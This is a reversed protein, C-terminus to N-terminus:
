GATALLVDIEAIRPPAGLREWIARSERLRAIGEETEGLALLCRGLGALAHAQEPPVGFTSWGDAASAYAERARGHDGRAEALAGTCSAVAHRNVPIETRVGDVLRAGLEPAGHAVCIRVMAPLRWAFGPDSRHIVRADLEALLDLARAYDLNADAAAAGALLALVVYLLHGASQARELARQALGVAEGARGQLVRLEAALCDLMLLGMEYRQETFDGRVGEILSAADVWRGGHIFWDISDFRALAARFSDGCARAEAEAAALATMSAQPGEIDGLYVALNRRSYAGPPGPVDAARRLDDLAGPDGLTWRLEARLIVGRDPMPARIRAAVAVARDIAGFAADFDDEVAKAAALECLADVLDESPGDGDLLRVAEADLATHGPIGLVHQATSRRTMARAAARVNGARTLNGAAEALIADADAPRGALLLAEGYRGLLVACSPDDTDLLSLAEEFIQAARSPNMEQAHIGAVRLWDVAESTAEATLAHDGVDRALSAATVFHRALLESFEDGTGQIQVTLWRAAAVHGRARAGRTLEGYAVDRLLAHWFTYEAEGAMTSPFVPRILERRALEDLHPEVDARDRASLAAVAGSWFTKGVVSADLLVAKAEPPLADIRAALLAAISAPIADEDLAGGAIPLVRDRLMAALQEAYLPSGGARDLVTALLAPSAGPLSGGVLATMARDPLAALSLVTSRRTRALWAPHREELEPRATVVILLPLGATHDVLHSLFAVLTDDAWHLDEVVLVTPGGQAIQELFRRWATFAEEQAPPETSTELGVLPALRNKMWARMSPDPEALVADLKAGLTAQDDTDLIGAHGKVIEGLAWLSIGDGYPLCRGVRWTVLDPLAKVHRALERVLRSKGLGPEAIITALELSPTARSREFLGVLLALELDRGVFPTSEAHLEGAPNALARLARFVGLPEAKGKVLTPPLAEYAFLHSTARWTPEGVVVGDTPALAQLRAATNVADGTVADDREGGSGAAFLVSGTNIGLRVHLDLGLGPIREIIRLAARVAREPDDEHAVPAGFLAMVGDGLFRDVLGGHRTIESTLVDYYPLLFARVDEPDLTESRATFGALDAFLVTVVKREERAAATAATGLKAACGNCFRAGDPNASGCAPCAAMRPLMPAPVGRPFPHARGSLGHTLLYRKWPSRPCRAGGGERGCNQKGALGV